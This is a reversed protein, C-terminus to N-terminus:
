NGWDDDWPDQSELFYEAMTGEHPRVFHNFLSARNYQTDLGAERAMAAITETTPLLNDIDETYQLRPM